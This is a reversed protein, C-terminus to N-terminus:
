YGRSQAVNRVATVGTPDVQYTTRLYADIEARPLDSLVPLVADTYIQRAQAFSVRNLLGIAHIARRRMQRTPGLGASAQADQQNRASGPPRIM